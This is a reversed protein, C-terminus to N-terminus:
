NFLTLGSKANVKMLNKYSYIQKVSLERLVSSVAKM